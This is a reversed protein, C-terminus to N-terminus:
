GAGARGADSGPADSRRAAAQAPRHEDILARMAAEDGEERYAEAARVQYRARDGRNAKALDLWAQAASRFEGQLYLTQADMESPLDARRAPTTQCATLAVALALLLSPRPLMPMM